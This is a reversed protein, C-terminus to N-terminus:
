GDVMITKIRLVVGEFLNADVQRVLLKLLEEVMVHEDQFLFLVLTFTDVPLEDIETKVQLCGDSENFSYTEEYISRLLYDSQLQRFRADCAILCTNLRRMSMCCQVWAIIVHHYYKGKVTGM